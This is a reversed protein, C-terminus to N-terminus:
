LSNGGIQFLLFGLPLMVRLDFFFCLKGLAHDIASAFSRTYYIFNRILTTVINDLYLICEEAAVNKPLGSSM